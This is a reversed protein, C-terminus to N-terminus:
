VAKAIWSRAIWTSSMMDLATRAKNAFEIIMPHLLLQECGGPMIPLLARLLGSFGAAVPCIPGIPLILTTPFAVFKQSQFQQGNPGRVDQTELTELYGYRLAYTQQADGPPPWLMSLPRKNVSGFWLEHQLDDCTGESTAADKVFHFM